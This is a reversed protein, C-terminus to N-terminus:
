DPSTCDLVSGYPSHLNPPNAVSALVESALVPMRMRYIDTSEVGLAQARAVVELNTWWANTVPYVIRFYGSGTADTELVGNGQLTALGSDEESELAVLLAPDQPDLSGNGNIDEGEDLIRNGNRDESPCEITYGPYQAWHSASWTADSIADKYAIGKSDVLVLRGKRYLVPKLSLQVQSDILAQGGGDAVQVVYTKSYQTKEGFEVVENSSGLTVNLVPEVVTLSVSNTVDFDEVDARIVIENQETGSSGATFSIEAEGNTNTIGSTSSLQGGKLNASSFTIPTNKVPNGNADTVVAVITASDRTNVRSSTTALNLSEPTDGVYFFTHKNSLSGDATEAFITVEGAISSLVTVTANGLDDTIVSSSDIIQGATVTFVLEQGVVPQGAFSWNIELNHATNVVLETESDKAFALQADSVTFSHDSVVTAVTSANKLAAFTITDAGKDTNVVVSARGRPDTLVSTTSLVNGVLSSIEILENALPTKEDGALLKAEITVETGPVVSDEGTLTLTSGEAVVRALSEFDGVVAKVIIDQNASDYKLSLIATAEGNEDTETQASQLIGGTTSFQIALDAVPLNNEDTVAATINATEQGGTLLSPASSIVRVNLDKGYAAGLEVSSILEGQANLTTSVASTDNSDDSRKGCASLVFACIFFAIAIRKM